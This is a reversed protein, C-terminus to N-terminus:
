NLHITKQLAYNCRKLFHVFWNLLDVMLFEIAVKM